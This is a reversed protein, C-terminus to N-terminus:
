LKGALKPDNQLHGGPCAPQTLLSVGDRLRRRAMAEDERMQRVLDDISDFRWEPRLRELFVLQMREEYINRSFDLLYAEVTRKGNDFTPRTGINTLAVYTGSALHARCIYVGNVPLLRAAVVALNATPFGMARGRKYGHVIEGCLQFAYGLCGNAEGIDGQTLATRIRSSSVPADRWRVIDDFVDVSYGLRRGARRLYDVNGEQRRGLRFDPGVWLDGLRVQNVLAQVFSEAPMERLVDDFPLVITGEVGLAEFHMLREDLTSLLKYSDPQLVQGPLPDFTIVIPVAQKARAGDVMRRILAQHGLHVGDFAGITVGTPQSLKLDALDHEIWM